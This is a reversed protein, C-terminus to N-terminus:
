SVLKRVLDAAIVFLLLTYVRRLWMESLSHGARVGIPAAILITPMM